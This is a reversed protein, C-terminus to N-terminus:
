SGSEWGLNSTRIAEETPWVVRLFKFFWNRPREKGVWKILAAAAAAQNIPLRSSLADVSM